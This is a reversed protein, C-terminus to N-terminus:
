QAKITGWSHGCDWCEWRKSESTVMCGGLVVKHSDLASKLNEDMYPEGYLIYAVRNSKCNPCFILTDWPRSNLSQALALIPLLLFLAAAVAIIFKPRTM